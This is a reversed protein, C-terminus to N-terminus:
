FRQVSVFSLVKFIRIDRLMEECWFCGKKGESVILMAKLLSIESVEDPHDGLFTGIRRLVWWDGDTPGCLTYFGLM